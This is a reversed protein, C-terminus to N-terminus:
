EFRDRLKELARKEIRSIYSRSIGLEKAIERQTLPKCVKGDKDPIGYRKAIIEREREDLEEEIFRYLKESNIKLLVDEEINIDASFIDALTLANGESDSDIPESISIETLQHKIKRFYMKIQNDICKSAYTSFHNGKQYDFTEAARILGITGISILDDQENSDPYNKNVIYAVLRLNHEILTNRATPDGAAIRKICEAEEKKSLQKPFMNRNELHLGFFLLNELALQIFIDFM